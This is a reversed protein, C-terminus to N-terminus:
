HRDDSIVTAIPISTPPRSARQRRVIGLDLGAKKCDKELTERMASAHTRMGPDSEEGLEYLKAELEALDKSRDVIGQRVVRRDPVGEVRALDDAVFARYRFAYADVEARLKQYKAQFAAVPGRPHHREALCWARNFAETRRVLDRYEDHTAARFRRAAAPLFIWSPSSCVLGAFLAVFGLIVTIVSQASFGTIFAASGAIFLTRAVRRRWRPDLPKEIEDLTVSVKILKRM